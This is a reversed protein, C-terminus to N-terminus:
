KCERLKLIEQVCTVNGIVSINTLKEYQNSDYQFGGGYRHMSGSKSEYRMM